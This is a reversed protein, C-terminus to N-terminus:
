LYYNYLDYSFLIASMFISLYSIIVAKDKGLVVPITNINSSKDESIDEIDLLNSSGFMLLFLSLLNAPNDLISYDNTYAVSPIVGCSITWLTAIYSSKLLGINKKLDRYYITSTLVPVFLRNYTNDYLSTVIFVYSSIIIALLVPKYDQLYYYYTIKYMDYQTLNTSNIIINSDLLRDLGYTFIGAMLQFVVLQPTIINTHFNEYTYVSQLINLPISLGSGPIIDTPKIQSINYLTNIKVKNVPKLFNLYKINTFKNIFM